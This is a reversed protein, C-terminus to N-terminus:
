FQFAGNKVRIQNTAPSKSENFQALFSDTPTPMEETGFIMEVPKHIPTAQKKRGENVQTQIQSLETEALGLKHIAEAAQAHANFKLLAGFIAAGVVIGASLGLLIWTRKRRIVPPLSLSNFDVRECPTSGMLPIDGLVVMEQHESMLTWRLMSRAFANRENEDTGNPDFETHVVRRTGSLFALVGKGPVLVIKGPVKAAIEAVISLPYGSKASVPYYAGAYAVYDGRTPPKPRGDVLSFDRGFINVTM